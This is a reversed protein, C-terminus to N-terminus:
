QSKIVMRTMMLLPIIILKSLSSHADDRYSDIVPVFSIRLVSQCRTRDWNIEEFGFNLESPRIQFM